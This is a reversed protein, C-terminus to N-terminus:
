CCAGQKPEAKAPGCCCGGPKSPPMEQALAKAVRAIQEADTITNTNWNLM